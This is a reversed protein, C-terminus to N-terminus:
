TKSFRGRSWVVFPGPPVRQSRPAFRERWRGRPLRRKGRVQDLLMLYTEAESGDSLRIRSRQFLIPVERTVDLKGLTMRDVWYLEGRVAGTGDRVIAGRAGLEVLRFGPETDAEGAPEAGGLASHEPEGALLSDYVFLRCKEPVGAVHRHDRGIALRWPDPTTVACHVATPTVGYRRAPAIARTAVDMRALGIGIDAM